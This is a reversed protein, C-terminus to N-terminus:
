VKEKRLALLGLALVATACIAKAADVVSIGALSAGRLVDVYHFSLAGAFSGSIYFVLLGAVATIYPSVRKRTIARAALILLGASVAAILALLARQYTQRAYYVDLAAVLKRGLQSLRGTVHFAEWFVALFLVAAAGSWLRWEGETRPIRGPRRRVANAACVLGGSALLALLALRFPTISSRFVEPEAPRAGPQFPTEPNPTIEMAFVHVKNFMPSGSREGPRRVFITQTSAGHTRTRWRGNPSLYIVLEVLALKEAEKVDYKFPYVGGGHVSPSPNVSRIGEIATHNKALLYLDAVLISPEPVSGLTIRVDLTGGAVAYSPAEVTLWDAYPDHLLSLFGWVVAFILVLLAIFWGARPIKFGM